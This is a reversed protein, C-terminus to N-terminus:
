PKPKEEGDDIEHGLKAIENVKVAILEIQHKNTKLPNDTYAAMISTAIVDNNPGLTHPILRSLWVHRGDTLTAPMQENVWTLIALLPYRTKRVHKIYAGVKDLLEAIPMQALKTPDFDSM